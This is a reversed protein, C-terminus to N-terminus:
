AEQGIVMTCATIGDTGLLQFEGHGCQGWSESAVPLTGTGSLWRRDQRLAIQESLIRKTEAHAVKRPQKQQSRAAWVGHSCKRREIHAEGPIM